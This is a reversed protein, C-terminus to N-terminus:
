GEEKGANLWTLVKQIYTDWFDWTHEGPGEEYTLDAEQEELFQRIKQNGEYLFDGTGVAQYLSPIEGDEEKLKSYLSFLDAESGDFHELDRFTAKWNYSGETTGNEIAHAIIGGMDLAGSLSAAKSYLDPRSLALFWAGYGGMSLGAVYTKERDRSVPFVHQIFYPLEETFFSKYKLGHPLDQYFSNEASCMVIAMGAEEAYREINSFRIWSFADGHAGHLLYLVPYDDGYLYPQKTGMDTYNKSSTPTPLYVNLTINSKFTDSYYHTEFLAM